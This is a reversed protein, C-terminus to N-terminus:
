SSLLRVGTTSSVTYSAKFLLHNLLLFESLISSFPSIILVSSVGSLLSKSTLIPM